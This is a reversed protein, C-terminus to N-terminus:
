GQHQKQGGIFEYICEPPIYSHKENVKEPVFHIDTCYLM